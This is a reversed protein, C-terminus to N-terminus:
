LTACVDGSDLKINTRMVGGGGFLGKMWESDNRM